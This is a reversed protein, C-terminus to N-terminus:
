GLNPEVAKPGYAAKMSELVREAVMERQPMEFLMGYTPASGSRAADPNVRVYDVAERLDQLYKDAIAEHTPNVMLHLSSPKPQRDIMWGQKELVDAVAFCNLAPGASSEPSCFSFICMAPEGVVQLGEIANIGEQLKRTTAMLREANEKYGDCGMANLAGWAAAINGGPRTGPMSPSAFVGGPWDVVVFFQHQLYDMNRYTITSAGKAAYGYKHVDASISTVGPVRYDFLPVDYGLMEMFPLFFGGVCADVHMGINKEEALAGLEEIPDIVGYPYCPASGVLAITNENILGRVADVDVRYDEALPAHVIKVDFYKGAKDFAVHTSEPIIIEPATVEPRLARARDRYTRVALMISETGGSSMTGVVQEDGHLLNATMRVVDGEFQRLSRFAMPNLGNEEFYLNHAQKLFDSHEDSQHFVLSWVKGGAWDADRERMAQMRELVEARDIGKAPIAKTAETM